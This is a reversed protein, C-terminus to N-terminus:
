KKKKSLKCALQFEGKEARAAALVNGQRKHEHILSKVERKSMYRVNACKGTEKRVLYLHVTKRKRGKDSKRPRRATMKGKKKTLVGEKREKNEGAGVQRGTASRTKARTLPHEAPRDREEV